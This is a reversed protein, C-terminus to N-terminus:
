YINNEFINPYFLNTDIYGDTCTWNPTNITKSNWILNFQLVDYVVTVGNQQLNFGLRMFIIDTLDIM